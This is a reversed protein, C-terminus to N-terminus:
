VNYSLVGADWLLRVTNRTDPKIEGNLPAFWKRVKISGMAFEVCWFLGIQDWKTTGKKPQGKVRGHYWEGNSACIWAVQDNEFRYPWPEHLEYPHTRSFVRHGWDGDDWTTLDVWELRPQPLLGTVDDFYLDNSSEDSYYTSPYM